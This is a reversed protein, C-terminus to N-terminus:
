LAQVEAHLYTSGAMIEFTGGAAPFFDRFFAVGAVPASFQHEYFVGGHDLVLVHLPGAGENFASAVLGSPMLGLMVEQDTGQMWDPPKAFAQVACPQALVLDKVPLPGMQAVQGLDLFLASPCDRPELRELNLM